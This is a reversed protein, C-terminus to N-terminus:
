ISSNMMKMLAMLKFNNVLGSMTIKFNCSTNLVLNCTLFNDFISGLVHRPIPAMLMLYTRTRCIAQFFVVVSAVLACHPIIRTRVQKEQDVGLTCLINM